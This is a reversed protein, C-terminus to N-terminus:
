LERLALEIVDLLGKLDRISQFIYIYAYPESDDGNYNQRRAEHIGMLAAGAVRAQTLAAEETTTIKM